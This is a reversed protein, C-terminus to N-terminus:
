LELVEKEYMGSLSIELDAGCWHDTEYIRGEDLDADSRKVSISNYAKLYKGSKLVLFIDFQSSQLISQRKTYM